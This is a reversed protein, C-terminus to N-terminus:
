APARKFSSKETRAKESEVPKATTTVISRTASEFLVIGKSPPPQEFNLHKIARRHYEFILGSLDDDKSLIEINKLHFKNVLDEPKIVLGHSPPTLLLEKKLKEFAERDEVKSSINEDILKEVYNIADLAQQYITYQQSGWIAMAVAPPIKKKKLTDENTLKPLTKEFLDKISRTSVVRAEGRPTTITFQPDIPGLSAVQLVIAKDSMLALLTAASRAQNPLIVGIYDFLARAKQLLEEPFHVDGGLSDVIFFVTKSNKRKQEAVMIDILPIIHSSNMTSFATIRPDLTNAIYAVVSIKEYDPLKEELVDEIRKLLEQRRALSPNEKMLVALDNPVSSVQEGTPGM